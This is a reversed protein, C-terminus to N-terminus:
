QTAGITMTRDDAPITLTRTDPPVVMVRETPTPPTDGVMFPVSAPLTM